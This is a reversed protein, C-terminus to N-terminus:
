AAYRRLRAEVAPGVGCVVNHHNECLLWTMNKALLYYEFGYCEGIVLSAIDPTVDFVPYHPRSGDEAIFWVREHPDPVFHRLQKWGDGGDFRVAEGPPCFNEWWWRAWGPAVFHRLAAHVVAEAEPAPLLRMQAPEIGLRDIAENIEDVITHM